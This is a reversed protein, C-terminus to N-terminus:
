EHEIFMLLKITFFHAHNENEIINILKHIASCSLQLILLKFSAFISLSDAMIIDRQSYHCYWLLRRKMKKKKKYYKWSCSILFEPWPSSFTKRSFGKIRINEVPFKLKIYSSYFLHLTTSLSFGSSMLKLRLYCKAHTALLESNCSKIIIIFHLKNYPKPGFKFFFSVIRRSKSIERWVIEGNKKKQVFFSFHWFCFHKNFFLFM